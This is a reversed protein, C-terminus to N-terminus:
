GKPVDTNQEANKGYIRIKYLMTAKFGHSGHPLHLPKPNNFGNHHGYLVTPKKPAASVLEFALLTALVLALFIAVQSCHQLLYKQCNVV